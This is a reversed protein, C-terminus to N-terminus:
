KGSPPTQAQPTIPVQQPNVQISQPNVQVTQPAGGNGPNVQITQPGTSPVQMPNGGGGPPSNLPAGVPIDCRHNPQGHPPNLAVDKNDTSTSPTSTTIGTQAAPTTAPQSTMSSSAASDTGTKTAADASTDSTCASIASAAVVLAGLFIQKM